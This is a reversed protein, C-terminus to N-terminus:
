FYQMLIRMLRFYSWKLRTLEISLIDKEWSTQIAIQIRPLKISLVFSYVINLRIVKLTRNMTEFHNRVINQDGPKIIPRHHRKVQRRILCLLNRRVLRRDCRHVSM